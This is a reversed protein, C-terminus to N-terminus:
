RNRFRRLGGIAALGLTGLMISIPEPVCQTAVEVVEVGNLNYYNESDFQITEYAPQYPLAWMATTFQSSGTTGGLWTASPNYVQGRPDTVTLTPVVTQPQVFKIEVWINKTQNPIAINDVWLVTEKGLQDTKWQPQQANIKNIEMTWFNPQGPSGTTYVWYQDVINTPIDARAPVASFMGLIGLVLAMVFWMRKTM